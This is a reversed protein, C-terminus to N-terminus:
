TFSFDGDGDKFDFDFQDGIKAKLDKHILYKRELVRTYIAKPSKNKQISHNLKDDYVTMMKVKYKNIIKPLIESIFDSNGFYYLVKLHANRVSCLMTCAIEQNQYVSVWFIEYDQSYSSFIYNEQEREKSLWPFDTIWQFESISRGVPNKKQCDIFKALKADISTTIKYLHNKKRSLYPIFYNVFTDLRKLWVKNNEFVPKKSPLLEALNSKFYYRIAKKPKLYDFFGIKNYLGEASPTFETIMLKKDYKQEAEFLLKQAIQKGRHNESVFLTSLWGFHFKEGNDATVDDPLIGLYGALIEDDYALFLLVDDPKARPNQLHSVERLESIPSFSFKQFSESRTFGNLQQKNLGVIKVM